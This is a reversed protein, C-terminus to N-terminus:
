YDENEKQIDNLERALVEADVERAKGGGVVFQGM